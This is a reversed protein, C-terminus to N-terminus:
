NANDYLDIKSQGSIKRAGFNRTRFKCSNQPFRSNFLAISTAYVGEIQDLTELDKSTHHHVVADARLQQIVLRQIEYFAEGRNQQLSYFVFVSRLITGCETASPINAGLIQREGDAM